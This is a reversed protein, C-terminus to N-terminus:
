KKLFQCKKTGCKVCHCVKMPRGNSAHTTHVDKNGTKVKCKVCYINSTTRPM